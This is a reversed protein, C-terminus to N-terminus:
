SFSAVFILWSSVLVTVRSMNQAFGPTLTGAAPLWLNLGRPARYGQHAAKHGGRCSNSASREEAAAIIQDFHSLATTVSM